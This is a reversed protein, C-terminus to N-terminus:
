RVKLVLPDPYATIRSFINETNEMLRCFCSVCVCVNCVFTSKSSWTAPEPPLTAPTLLMQAREAATRLLELWTKKHWEEGGERHKLSKQFKNHSFNSHQSHAHELFFFFHLGCVTSLLLDWLETFDFYSTTHWSM